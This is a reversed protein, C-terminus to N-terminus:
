TDFVDTEVDSVLIFDLDIEVTLAVYVSVLDLLINPPM